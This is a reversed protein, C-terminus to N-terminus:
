ALYRLAVQEALAVGILLAEEDFDFRPSHHPADLGRDSNRSGVFAFCSPVREAIFAFDEGGMSRAHDLVNNRGVVEAAAERVMAAIAAHNMLPPSQREYDITAQCGLASSVGTVLDAFRRPIHDALPGGATRVTGRLVASEPIVNFADGANLSTVSVVLQDFPDAGRSVLTQLATVVQAAAVVPDANQHPMAAHGGRGRITIEFEDVAAMVTGAAAAITGVPLDNWLHLGFAADVRPEELLGQEIMALAGRGGEEAPQFAYKVSGRWARRGAALRKAAGLAIAVHGDHGCAHMVGPNTSRYPANTAEEVPLADMDARLLLVRESGGAEGSLLGVVGTKGVGTRVSYGLAALREAAIGATRTEQYRLEPHAHIDRRIAVLEALEDANVSDFEPLARQAPLDRM